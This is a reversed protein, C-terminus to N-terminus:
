IVFATPRQPIRLVDRSGNMDIRGYGQSGKLRDYMAREFARFDEGYAQGDRYNHFWIVGLTVLEDDWLPTNLDSIFQKIPRTKGWADVPAPGPALEYAPVASMDAVVNVLGVDIHPPALETGARTVFRTNLGLWSGTAPVFEFFEGGAVIPFYLTQGQGVLYRRGPKLMMGNVTPESIERWLGASPELVIAAGDRKLSIWDRYGPPCRNELPANDLANFRCGLNEWTGGEPVLEISDGFSIPSIRIEHGSRVITRTGPSLTVGDTSYSVIHPVAQEEGIADAIYEYGILSGANCGPTIWIDNARRVWRPQWAGIPYGNLNAWDSDTEAMCMPVHRTYDFMTDQVFRLLDEPVARTQHQGHVTMFQHYRKCQQWDHTTLLFQCTREIARRLRRQSADVSPGFLTEPAELALDDAVTQAISLITGM